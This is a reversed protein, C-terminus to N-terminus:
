KDKKSEEFSKDLLQNIIDKLAVLKHESFNKNHPNKKLCKPCLMEFLENESNCNTDFCM